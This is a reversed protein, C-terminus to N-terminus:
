KKREEGLYLFNKPRTPQPTGGRPIGGSITTLLAGMERGGGSERARNRLRLKRDRM